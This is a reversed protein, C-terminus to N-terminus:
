GHLLRKAVELSLITPFADKKETDSTTEERQLTETASGGLYGCELLFQQDKCKIM